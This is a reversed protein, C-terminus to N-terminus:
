CVDENTMKLNFRLKLTIEYFVKRNIVFFGM